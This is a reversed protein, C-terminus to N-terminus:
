RARSTSETCTCITIHRETQQLHVVLLPLTKLIRGRDRRTLNCTASIYQIVLCRENSETTACCDISMSGRPLLATLM